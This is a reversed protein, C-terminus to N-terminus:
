KYGFDGCGERNRGPRATRGPEATKGREASGGEVKEEVVQSHESDAHVRHSVPLVHTSVHRRRNLCLWRFIEAKFTSMQPVHLVSRLATCHALLMCHNACFMWDAHLCSM